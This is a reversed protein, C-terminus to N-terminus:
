KFFEDKLLKYATLCNDIVSDRLAGNNDVFCNISSDSSCNSYDAPVAAWAETECKTHEVWVDPHRTTLAPISAAHLHQDIPQSL